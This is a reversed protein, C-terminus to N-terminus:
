FGPLLSFQWMWNQRPRDNPRVYTLQGVAFGLINFRLSAGYSTVPVRPGDLFWAKQASTWAVGADFFPAIEVPPFRRSPILGLFGILPIRLEVNAVAIRSGLFQDFAPCTATVGAAAECEEV